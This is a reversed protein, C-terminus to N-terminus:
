SSENKEREHNAKHEVCVQTAHVIPDSNSSDINRIFIDSFEKVAYYKSREIRTKNNFSEVININNQDKFSGNVTLYEKTFDYIIEYTLM